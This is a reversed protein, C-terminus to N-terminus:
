LRIHIVMELHKPVKLGVTISEHHDMEPRSQHPRRFARPRLRLRLTHLM